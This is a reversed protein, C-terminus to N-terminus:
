KAGSVRRRIEEGFNVIVRLHTEPKESGADVLAISSKGDATMTFVPDPFESLRREAWIRPKEAALTDGKVTYAVAQIRSSADKFFINGGAAPWMPDFGTEPSILWKGGATHGDATLSIVYIQYRGSESSMYALFRNDPSFTPQWARKAPIEIISRFRIEDNAQEVPAIWLGESNDTKLGMRVGAAFKGNGSFALIRLTPDGPLLKPQGAGDARVIYHADTSTFILRQGDPTWLPDRQHRNDLVPRSTVNRKLDHVLLGRKSEANNIVAVTLRSGDPSLEPTIYAAPTALVPTTKGTSDIRVVTRGASVGRRYILVGTSSLDYQPFQDIVVVDDLVPVPESTLRTQNLDFGAAFLKGQRYFVLYGGDLYRAGRADPILVTSTLQGPASIRVSNTDVEETTFILGKGQPLYRPGWQSFGQPLEVLAKAAGGRSPIGLITATGFRQLVAAIEGNEGWGVGGGEPSEALASPSGGDLALKMLKNTTFFGISRGDPSFFPFHAGETDPLQTITTQDLRRLSLHSGKEDRSVFVVRSGDASIIPDTVEGPGGDLDLHILPRDATSQPARSLTWVIALLAVALAAATSAPWLKSPKTNVAPAPDELLERWDGVDRLRKRPDKELCRKLLRRLQSPVADLDPEKTLVAAFADSVTEGAFLKRGTLMEWVVIGFAWIDARKDVPLGRAQEPAMYGPTGMVMGAATAGMTMTVATNPTSEAMKALGFDLVKITGQPTIKINAPKLDRHTIGKEHAAELAAAIQAAYGLATELPVPGCLEPGDILEMVIAGDEVGYIAAINPHNLAALAHAERTFRALTEPDQAGSLIKIAVERNLKTDTARYVAGMGGEGLKGTIKYHAIQEPAM